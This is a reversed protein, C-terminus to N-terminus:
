EGLVFTKELAEDLVSRIKSANEIMICLYERQEESMSGALGDILITGFQHICALANRLEHSLHATLQADVNTLHRRNREKEGLIQKREIAHRMSQIFFDRHSSKVVYDDLGLRLAKATNATEDENVLAVVPLDRAKELTKKVSEDASADPLSPNLLVLQFRSRQLAELGESLTRTRTFCFQELTGTNAIRGIAPIEGADILLVPVNNMPNRSRWLVDLM